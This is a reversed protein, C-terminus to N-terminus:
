WHNGFDSADYAEVNNAHLYTKFSFGRFWGNITTDNERFFIVRFFHFIWLIFDLSFYFFKRSSFADFKWHRSMTKVFNWLTALIATAFLVIRHIKQICKSEFNPPCDLFIQNSGLNSRSFDAMNTIIRLRLWGRWARAEQFLTVLEVWFLIWITTLDM